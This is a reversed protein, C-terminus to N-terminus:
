RKVPLLVDGKSEKPCILGERERVDEIVLPTM